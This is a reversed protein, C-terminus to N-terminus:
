QNIKITRCFSQENKSLLVTMRLKIEKFLQKLEEKVHIIDKVLFTCGDFPLSFGRNSEFTDGLKENKRLQLIM